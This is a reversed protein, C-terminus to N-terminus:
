SSVGTARRLAKNGRMRELHAIDNSTINSQLSQLWLMPVKGHLPSYTQNYMLKKQFLKGDTLSTGLSNRVRPCRLVFNVKPQKKWLFKKGPAVTTASKWKTTSLTKCGGCGQWQFTLTKDRIKRMNWESHEATFEIKLTAACWAPRGGAWIETSTITSYLFNWHMGQQTM